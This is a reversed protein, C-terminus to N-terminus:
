SMKLSDVTSRGVKLGWDMARKVNEAKASIISTMPPRNLQPFCAHFRGYRPYLVMLYRGIYRAINGQQTRRWSRPLNGWDSTKDFGEEQYASLSERTTVKGPKCKRCKSRFRGGRYIYSFERFCLECITNHPLGKTLSM